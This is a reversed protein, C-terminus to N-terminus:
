RVVSVEANHICVDTGARLNAASLAVGLKMRLRIESRPSESPNALGGTRSRASRGGEIAVGSLRVFYRSSQVDVPLDIENRSAARGNPLLGVRQVVPESRIESAPRGEVTELTLCYRIMLGPDSVLRFARLSTSDTRYAVVGVVLATGFLGSLPGIVVVDGPLVVFDRTWKPGYLRFAYTRALAYILLCLLVPGLCLNGYLTIQTASDGASGFRMARIRHTSNFVNLVSITIGVVLISAFARPGIRRIRTM